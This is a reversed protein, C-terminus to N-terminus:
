CRGGGDDSCGDGIELAQGCAQAIQYAFQKNKGRVNLEVLGGEIQQKMGHTSGTTRHQDWTLTLVM